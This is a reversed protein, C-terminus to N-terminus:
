NQLGLTIEELEAKYKILTKLLIPEFQGDNGNMIELAEDTTFAKKYSRKSTLADYVDTVALIRACLPIDYGSVSDPYGKGDFREHHYRALDAAINVFEQDVVSTINKKIIDYGAVTHLKMLDFEEGTLKDTKRLISDAVTIKGIDHMPAAKCILDMTTPTLNDVYVGDNVLKEMLFRTYVSTRKVHEGTTGDRSEIINALTFIINNQLSTIENLQEIVTRELHRRYEELELSRRVRSFMVMPVFPKSIYDVAGVEFCKTETEVSRDATLFIVPIQCTSKNSKLAEIVEFGNMEPMQIDLLILDPNNESIVSLAEKGSSATLIEFEKSLLRRALILNVRDDDVVVIKKM